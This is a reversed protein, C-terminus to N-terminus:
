IRPKLLMALFDTAKLWNDAEVLEMNVTAHVNKIDSDFPDICIM